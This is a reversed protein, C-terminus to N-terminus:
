GATGIRATAMENGNPFSSGAVRPLVIRAILGPRANAEATADFLDVVDTIINRLAVPEFSQCRTGSEAEAIQLLKDFVVILDSDPNAAGRKCFGM